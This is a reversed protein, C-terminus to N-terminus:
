LQKLLFYLVLWFIPLGEVLFSSFYRKQETKSIVVLWTLVACFVVLSIIYAPDSTAKFFEILLCTLLALLGVLKTKEVGLQQPLTKLSLSDYPIDRIEFPVILVVVILIRQFFTLLVDVSIETKSAVFPIIVTIGAWVFGVVFIKLGSFMRLNRHRIFPVAYFFTTLGFVAIILLTNLSLQFALIVMQIFCIASFIQIAKLSGTLTRHHLGAIKAYKVFNYATLAGLFVFVSITIQSELNYELVTILFLALVALAVHISSNIYFDFVGKLFKMIDFTAM